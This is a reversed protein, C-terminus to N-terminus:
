LPTWAPISGSTVRMRITPGAAPYQNLKWSIGPREGGGVGRPRDKVRQREGKGRRAVVREGGDQREEPIIFQPQMLPSCM